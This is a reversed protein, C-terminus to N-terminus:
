WDNLLEMVAAPVHDPVDEANVCLPTLERAAAEGARGHLYVGLAGAGYSSLGQALLAGVMGALVDGTGATALAPTGSTNVVHRRGDSTVTGAGKLVVVRGDDALHACSSVRDAQVRAATTGLLRALEGPHPTLVTPWKRARVLDVADVLANLADADIVLPKGLKPVIARVCAVAGDALSLGPGIVAADYDGALDLAARVANSSLAKTRGAPLGVVTASLLHSQAIAVLPEPVALTVYGAGMRVAGKAALIAAGPFRGSGAIILLRGRANKHTDAELHPLLAAYEAPIWVEPADAVTALGPPVGLDAVIIEGAHAAGPYLVLGRKPAIFTVTCHANVADESAAGTDAHVGTPVDAAILYAGCENIASCWAPLPERLPLAAGTGLLADVVAAAEGFDGATPAGNPMSWAVGAELAEAAADAALGTLTAPDRLSLVRVRRGALHLERACVWGDGGNDGAGCAIVVDGEPVRELLVRALDRGALRMLDALSLGAEHVVHQEVARSESATLVHYM